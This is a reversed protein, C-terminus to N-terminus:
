CFRRPITNPPGPRFATERVNAIDVITLDSRWFADEKEGFRAAVKSLTWPADCTPVKGDYLPGSLWFNLGFINAAGAHTVPLLALACALTVGFSWARGSM